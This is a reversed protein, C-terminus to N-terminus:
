YWAMFFHCPMDYALVESSVKFKRETYVEINHLPTSCSTHNITGM